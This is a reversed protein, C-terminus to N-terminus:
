EVVLVDDSCHGVQGDLHPVRVRACKHVLQLPVFILHVDDLAVWREVVEQQRSTMITEDNNPVQKGSVM